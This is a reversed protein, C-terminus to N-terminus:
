HAARASGAPGRALSLREGLRRAEDASVVIGAGRRLSPDDSATHSCCRSPSRTHLLGEGVPDERLCVNINM